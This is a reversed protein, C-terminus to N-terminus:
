LAEGRKEELLSVLRTLLFDQFQRSEDLFGHEKHLFEELLTITLQKTGSEFAKQAIYIQGDDTLGFCDNGLSKVFIVDNWEGEYGASTLFTSAKKFMSAQLHSLTLTEIQDKFPQRKSYWSYWSPGISTLHSKCLERMVSMFESSPETSVYGLGINYEYSGKSLVAQKIIAPDKCSVLASGVATNLQWEAMATRDETLSIASLVNWRFLPPYEPRHVAFGRYFIARAKPGEHINAFGLGDMLVPTTILFEHSNRHVNEMAEGKVLVLTEEEHRMDFLQAESNTRMEVDGGEDKANAYLERYAQWLEWTKGYESTFSLEQVEGTRENKMQVIAIDSGRFTTPKLSFTYLTDGALISIDLGKRLCVAIAYKLGTGFFGTPNSHAKAHLGMITAGRIDMVGPNRFIIM